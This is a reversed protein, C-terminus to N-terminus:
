PFRQEDVSEATACTMSILLGDADFELGCAPSFGDTPEVDVVTQDGEDNVSVLVGDPDAPWLPRRGNARVLATLTRLLSGDLQEAADPMQWRKDRLRRLRGILVRRELSLDFMARDPRVGGPSVQRPREDHTERIM